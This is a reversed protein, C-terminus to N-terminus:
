ELQSLIINNELEGCLIKKINPTVERTNSNCLVQEESEGLLYYIKNEKQYMTITKGIYISGMNGKEQKYSLGLPVIRVTGNIDLISKIIKAVGPQFKEKLSKNKYISNNGEPFVFLNCRKQIFKEIVYKIPMVNEKFNRRDPYADVSILGMKQYIARFKKNVLKLVNKSVIINPRPCEYQKGYATYAYNLFSNFIPYIFKDKEPNEHNMLFIHPECSKAIKEISGNEVNMDIFKNHISNGMKAWEEIYKSSSPTISRILRFSDYFPKLHELILLKTALTRLKNACKYSFRLLNKKLESNTNNALEKRILARIKGSLIDLGKKSKSEKYFFDFPTSSYLIDTKQPLNLLGKDSLRIRLGFNINNTANSYM